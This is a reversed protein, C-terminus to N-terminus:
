LSAELIGWPNGPDSLTARVLSGPPAAAGEPLLARLFNGSLGKPRGSPRHPSSEVLLLAGKGAQGQRFAGRLGRDLARLAKARERRVAPPIQGPLSAARAGPRSSYPFVHLYGLPLGAVLDLSDRFDSDSEGPFGAMVDTGLCIGPNEGALALILEQFFSPPYPRGM